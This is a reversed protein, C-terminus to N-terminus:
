YSVSPFYISQPDTYEGKSMLNMPKIVRLGEALCWTFFSAFRVPLLFSLSKKELQAAGLLLAQMDNDHEAVGHSGLWATAAVVYARIKGDRVAVLPSGTTLRDRLENTRAFGLTRVHLRECDALDALRMHRIEYGSPLDSRPLGTVLVCFERTVFGMATYLALSQMNFSEQVLRVGRAGEARKLMDAMLLRGAGHNQTATDVVIPGVARIPDYESLFGFGVIAGSAEAVIAYISPHDIFSRVRDTATSISPFNSLFGHQRAIADFGRFCIKGCSESDAPTATRINIPM